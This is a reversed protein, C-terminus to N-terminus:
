VLKRGALDADADGIGVPDGGPARGREVGGAGLDRRGIEVLVRLREDLRDRLSDAREMSTETCEKMRM